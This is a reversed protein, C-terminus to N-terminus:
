VGPPKAQGPAGVPEGVAWTRDSQQGSSGLGARPLAPLACVQAGVRCEAETWPSCLEEGM